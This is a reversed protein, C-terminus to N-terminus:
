AARSSPQRFPAASADVNGLAALRELARQLILTDEMLHDEVVVGMRLTLIQVGSNEYRTGDPLTAGVRFRATVATRIPTGAVRIDTAEINLDPFLRHIREFWARVAERGRVDAGLASTGAFTFIVDPAFGQLLADFNGSSIQQFGKRLQQKVIRAFM